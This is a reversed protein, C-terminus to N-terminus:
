IRGVASQVLTLAELFALFYVGLIAMGAARFTDEVHRLFARQLVFVFVATAVFLATIANSPTLGVGALLPPKPAGLSVLLIYLFGAIMSAYVPWKIRGPLVRSAVLFLAILLFIVLINAFTLLVGIAIAGVVLMAINGLPNSLGIGFKDWLNPADLNSASFRSTELQFTPATTPNTAFLLLSGTGAPVATPLVASGPEFAARDPAGSPVGTTGDLPMYLLVRNTSTPQQWILEQQAGERALALENSALGPLVPQPSVRLVGASWSADTVGGSGTWVAWVSTGSRQLDLGWEDPTSSGATTAANDIQDLTQPPGLATGSGSYRQTIVRFGNNVCCQDLYVLRIGGQSDGVAHPDFAYSAAHTLQVPQTVTGDPHVRILYADFASKQWSFVVDTDRGAAFAQLHELPSSGSALTHYVPQSGGGLVALRVSTKNGTDERWATVEVPGNEALTVSGPTTTPTGALTVDPTIRTGQRDFRSLHLSNASDSWLVDFGRNTSAAVFGSGSIAPLAVQPTRWHKSWDRTAHDALFYAGFCVTLMLLLTAALLRSSSLRQVLSSESSGDRAPEVSGSQDGSSNM